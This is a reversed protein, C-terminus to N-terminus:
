SDLLALELVAELLILESLMEFITLELIISEIKVRITNHIDENIQHSIM